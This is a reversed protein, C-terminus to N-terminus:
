GGYANPIDSVLVEIFPPQREQIEIVKDEPVVTEGLYYLVDDFADYRYRRKVWGYYPNQFVVEFVATDTEPTVTESALWVPAYQELHPRIFADRKERIIEAQM